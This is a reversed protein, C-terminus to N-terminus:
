AVNQEPTAMRAVWDDFHLRLLWTFVIEANFGVDEMMAIWEEARHDRVHSPDRLLEIAQLHTDQVFSSYSVIDSLLLCGDQRLLRRFEHLADSHTPGITLATDHSLLILPNTKSHCAKWM